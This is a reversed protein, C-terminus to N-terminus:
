ANFKMGVATGVNTLLSQRDKRQCFDAIYV